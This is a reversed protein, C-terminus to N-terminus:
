RNPATGANVDTTAVSRPTQGVPTTGVSGITADFLKAYRAAMVAESFEAVARARGQDGMAVRLLRSRGLNALHGAVAVDDRADALLGVSPTVVDAVSGVATSVVPVGTAMAEIITLPIGESVSTLLLTDAATLLRPVDHRTGLLRVLGGLKHERIFAEIAPREPGDGVVVLKLGPIVRGARVCARLATLHDKIPDLRAVMLVAYEDSRLGLEARVEARVAPSPVFRDTDIGNPIVEVKRDPIGENELLAQKVSRGVAVVRDRRKMLVWNAVKRKPRPYDPFHRGHETFVIPVRGARVRGLLAYFFPTYQHAQVLQVGHHRWRAALRLPCRWDLGPKRGIVEVDFGEAKLQEAGPGLDDLCLFVFRYRDRLRRALNGALVEAGGVNLTHVLQCVVPRADNM